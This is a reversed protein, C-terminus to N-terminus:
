ISEKEQQLVARVPSAEKGKINLPLINLVYGHGAKIDAMRLGELIWINEKFLAKHTPHGPQGREIGLADIGILAPRRKAAARAAEATLFVYDPDFQDTYSNRTKILVASDQRIQELPLDTLMIGGCVDTLDIVTCPLQSLELPFFDISIGDPLVHLPADLHTGTHLNIELRHECIGDHAHSRDVSIKPRNQQRNKYVQMDAEIPMTIDFWKM